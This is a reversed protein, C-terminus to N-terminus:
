IKLSQYIDDWLKFEDAIFATKPTVTEAIEVYSWNNSEEAAPWKSNVKGTKAIETLLGSMTEMVVDDTTGPAVSTAKLLPVNMHLFFRLEDAHAVGKVSSINFIAKIFSSQNEHNFIYLYNPTTKRPDKALTQVTKCVGYAFNIMSQIKVYGEQTAGNPFYFDKLKKAVERIKPSGLPFGAEKPLMKQIGEDSVDPVFDASPLCLVGEDATIGSVYLVDATDGDALAQKPHKTIFANPTGIPEITPTFPLIALLRDAAWETGEVQEYVYPTKNLIDSTSASKLTEIVDELSSSKAGLLTALVTASKAPFRSHSLKSLVSGSLAIARHFLGRSLPSLTHYQVSAAGASEGFITVNNPDGGFAAINEQVWRLGLNQDKLGNNGAYEPTNLSLFGFPGLRYNINVQIVGKPVLYDPGYMSRNGNGCTFGGGHIWVMVPLKNKDDCPAPTFVNLYLCDESCGPAIMPPDCPIELLSAAPPPPKTADLVESWPEVPVPPKFRLEAVPPKGYPIGEFASIWQGRETEFEYGRVVGLPTKVIVSRDGAM